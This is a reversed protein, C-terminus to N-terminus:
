YNRVLHARGAAILRVGVADPGGYVGAVERQNMGGQLYLDEGVPRHTVKGLAAAWVAVDDKLDVQLAARAREGLTRVQGAPSTALSRLVKETEPTPALDPSELRFNVPDYRMRGAFHVEGQLAGRLVLTVAVRDGGATVKASSARLAEGEQDCALRVREALSDCPIEFDFPIRLEDPAIRVRPEPLARTRPTAALVAEATVMRPRVRFFVDFRVSDGAVVLPLARAEQPDWDLDIGSLSMPMPRVLAQWGTGIVERGARWDRFLSDVLGPLRAGAAAQVHQDVLETFDVGPPIPKCRRLYSTPLLTSLADVGWNDGWGIRTLCGIQAKEPQSGTGCRVPAFGEGHAEVTFAVPVLFRVSDRGAQMAVPERWIHARYRVEGEVRRGEGPENAESAPALEDRTSSALDKALSRELGARVSALSASFTLRVYSDAVDPASTAAPLKPAAIAPLTVPPSAAWSGGALFCAAALAVLFAVCVSGPTM